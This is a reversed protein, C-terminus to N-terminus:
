DTFVNRNMLAFNCSIIRFGAYFDKNRITRLMMPVSKIAFLIFSSLEIAIYEDNEFIIPLKANPNPRGNGSMQFLL